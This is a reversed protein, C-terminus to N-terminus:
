GESVRGAGAVDGPGLRLEDGLEAERFAGAVALEAV